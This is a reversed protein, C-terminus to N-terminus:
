PGFYLMALGAALLIGMIAFAIGVPMTNPEISEIHPQGAPRPPNYVQPPSQNRLSELRELLRMALYRVVADGHHEALPTLLRLRKDHVNEKDTAVSERSYDYDAMEAEHRKKQEMEALQNRHFLERIDYEMQATLRPM